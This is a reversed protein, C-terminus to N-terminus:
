GSSPSAQDEFVITQVPGRVSLTTEATWFSRMDGRSAMHPVGACEACVIEGCLYIEFKTCGCGCVFVYTANEDGPDTDLPARKSGPFSIINSM